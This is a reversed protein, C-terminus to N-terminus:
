AGSQPDLCGPLSLFGEETNLQSGLLVAHYFYPLFSPAWVVAELRGDPWPDGQAQATGPCLAPPWPSLLPFGRFRPKPLPLRTTHNCSTSITGM